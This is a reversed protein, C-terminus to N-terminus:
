EGQIKRRCMTQKYEDGEQRARGSKRWGRDIRESMKRSLGTWTRSRVETTEILDDHDIKTLTM